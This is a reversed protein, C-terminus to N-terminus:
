SALPEPSSLFTFKSVLKFFEGAKEFKKCNGQCNKKKKKKKKKGFKGSLHLGQGQFYINGEGSKKRDSTSLSQTIASFFAEDLAESFIIKFPISKFSSLM